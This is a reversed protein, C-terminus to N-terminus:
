TPNLGYHNRSASSIEKARQSYLRQRAWNKAAIYSNKASLREQLPIHMKMHIDRYYLGKIIADETLPEILLKGNVFSPNKLYTIVVTGSVNSSFEFKNTEYNRLYKYPNGGGGRFQHGISEGNKFRAEIVDAGIGSNINPETGLVTPTPATEIGDKYLFPNKSSTEAVPILGQDTMIDIGIVKVIGTPICARNMEDLELKEYSPTGSVDYSLEKLVRIGINYLRDWNHRTSYGREIIYEDLIDGLTRQEHM